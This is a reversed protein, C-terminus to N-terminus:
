GGRVWEEESSVVRDVVSDTEREAKQYNGRGRGLGYGFGEKKRCLHVIEM